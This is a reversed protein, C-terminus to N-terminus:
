RKCTCLPHIENLRMCLIKNMSMWNLNRFFRMRLLQCEFQTTKSYLSRVRLIQFARLKNYENHNSRKSSNMMTLRTKLFQRATNMIIEKTTHLKIKINM